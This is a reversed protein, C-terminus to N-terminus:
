HSKDQKKSKQVNCYIYYQVPAGNVSIVIQSTLKGTKQPIYRVYFTKYSNPAISKENQKECTVYTHFDSSMRSLSLFSTDSKNYIKFSAKITDGLSATCKVYTDDIAVDPPLNYGRFSVYFRGFNTKVTSTKSINGIRRTDVHGYSLKTNRKPSIPDRKWYPKFSPEGWTVYGFVFPESSINTLDFDYITREDYNVTGINVFIRNDGYYRLMQEPFNIPTVVISNNNEFDIKIQAFCSINLTLSIILIIYKM